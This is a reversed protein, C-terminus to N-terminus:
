VANSSVQTFIKRFQTRVKLLPHLHGGTPLSGMANFNYAKFEETRWTGKTLMEHTLETAQRKRELAFNPGKTIRYTKWSEPKLLKRKKALNDADAKPIDKSASVDRLLQQTRDM